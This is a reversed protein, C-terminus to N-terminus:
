FLLLLVISLTLALNQKLDGIGFMIYTTLSLLMPILVMYKNIKWKYKHLILMIIFVVSVVNLSVYFGNLGYQAITNAILYCGMGKVIKLNLILLVFLVAVGLPALFHYGVNVNGLVYFVFLLVIVDLVNKYLKKIM